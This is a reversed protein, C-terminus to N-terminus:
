ALGGAGPLAAPLAGPQGAPMPHRWVRAGPRPAAAAADPAAGLRRALAESRTNGNDIYSVATTWGLAAFAWDRAAAAAEYALGRGEHASDWLTWTLEPEPWSEPFFPGAHGIPRGTARDEAIFRGFGRLAWHGFFGSFLLWVLAEDEGRLTSRPSLRYARYAPWDEARPGRLILHRTEIVPVATM